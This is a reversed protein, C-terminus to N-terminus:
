ADRTVAVTPRDSRSRRMVGVEVGELGFVEAPEVGVRVARHRKQALRLPM